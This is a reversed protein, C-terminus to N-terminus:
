HLIEDDAAALMALLSVVGAYQGVSAGGGLSVLSAVAALVNDRFRHQIGRQALLLMDALGFFTQKPLFRGISAVIIGAIVPFLVTQWPAGGVSLNRIAQAGDIFTIGVVAAVVSIIVALCIILAATLM